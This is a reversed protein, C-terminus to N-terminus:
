AVNREVAGRPAADGCGVAEGWEGVFESSVVECEAEMEEVVWVLIFQLSFQLNCIKSKLNGFRHKNQLQFMRGFTVPQRTAAPVNHAHSSGFFLQM